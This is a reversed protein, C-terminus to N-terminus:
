CQCPGAVNWHGSTMSIRNVRRNEFFSKDSNYLTTRADPYHRILIIRENSGKQISASNNM